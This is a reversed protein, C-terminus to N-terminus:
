KAGEEAPDSDQGSGNGPLNTNTNFEPGLQGTYGLDELEQMHQEYEAESVVKVTFLMLSHYEGCLEACKGHFTGEELPIFYLYNSKAPIMDKKYLFDLIWFSHIVDRSEVNIEVRKNV